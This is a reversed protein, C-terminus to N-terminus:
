QYKESTATHQLTLFVCLTNGRDAVSLLWGGDPGAESKPYVYVRFTTEFMEDGVTAGASDQEEVVCLGLSMQPGQLSKTDNKYSLFSVFKPWGARHLPLTKVHLLLLVKVVM